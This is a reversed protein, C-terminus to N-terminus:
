SRKENNIIQFSSDIEMLRWRLLYGFISFGVSAAVQRCPTLSLRISKGIFDASETELDESAHSELDDM